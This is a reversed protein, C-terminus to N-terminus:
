RGMTAIICFEQADGTPAPSIPRDPLDAFQAPRSKASRNKERLRCCSREKEPALPFHNLGIDPTEVRWGFFVCLCSHRCPVCSHTALTRAGCFFLTLTCRAIQAQLTYRASNQGAANGGAPSRREAKAYSYDRADSHRALRGRRAQRFRALGPDASWRELSSLDQSLTKLEVLMSNDAAMAGFRFTLAWLAFQARLVALDAPTASRALLELHRVSESEPRVADVFRNLPTLSDKARRGHDGARASESADALIRLPEVNGSGALRGIM